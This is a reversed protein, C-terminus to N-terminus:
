FHHCHKLEPPTCTCLSICWMLWWPTRQQKFHVTFCFIKANATMKWCNLKCINRQEKSQRHVLQLVRLVVNNCFEEVSFFAFITSAFAEQKITLWTFFPFVPTLSLSVLGYFPLYDCCLTLYAMLLTSKDKSNVLDIALQAPRMWFDARILQPILTKSDGLLAPPFFEAQKQRSTSPLPFELWLWYHDAPLVAHPPLGAHYSHIIHHMACSAFIITRFGIVVGRCVAPFLAQSDWVPRSGGCVKGTTHCRNCM